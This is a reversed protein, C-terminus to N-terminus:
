QENGDRGRDYADRCVKWNDMTEPEYEVEKGDLKISEHYAYIM